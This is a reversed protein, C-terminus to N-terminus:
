AMVTQPNSALIVPIKSTKLVRNAVSGIIGCLSGTSRGHPSIVILDVGLSRAADNIAEVVPGERIEQLVAFHDKRLSDALSELYDGAINLYVRKKEKITESLRPDNPHYLDHVAYVDTPYEVVRLLVIEAESLSALDCVLPLAAEAVESGDLPVLIRKYMHAEMDPAPIHAHHPMIVPSFRNFLSLSRLQMM